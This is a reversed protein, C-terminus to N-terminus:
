KDSHGGLGNAPRKRADAWARVDSALWLRFAGCYAPLPTKGACHLQYWRQRSIGAHKAAQRMTWLDELM